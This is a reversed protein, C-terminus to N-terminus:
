AQEGAGAAAPAPEPAAVVGANKEALKQDLGCLRGKVALQEAMKRSAEDIMEDGYMVAGVKDEETAKKYAAM